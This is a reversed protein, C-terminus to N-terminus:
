QLASRVTFCGGELFSMNFLNIRTYLMEFHSTVIFASSIHDARGDVLFLERGEHGLKVM